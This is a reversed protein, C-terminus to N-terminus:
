CSVAALASRPASVKEFVRGRRRVVSHRWADGVAWGSASSTVALAHLTADVPSLALTWQIADWHLLTGDQGAAWGDSVSTMAITELGPSNPDDLVTSWASGDWRVIVRGADEGGVAWGDNPRSWASTACRQPPRPTFPMGPAEMGVCFREAQALLGAKRPPFCRFRM